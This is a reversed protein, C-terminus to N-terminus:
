YRGDVTEGLNRTTLAKLVTRSLIESLFSVHGDAFAFNAGSAHWSQIGGEDFSPKSNIGYYSTAGGWAFWIKGMQCVGGPCYAPYTTPFPDNDLVDVECILLTKSTGDTIDKMKTRSAAFMVGTGKDDIGQLVARHTAVSLYNTEACDETGPFALTSSVLQNPPASPCQYTPILTKVAQQNATSNYSAKFNILNQANAEELFPLILAGWAWTIGPQPPVGYGGGDPFINNAGHYNHIALSMQKLNNSCSARRAAERAAQVAPLLLAILIGIIAIVVLLEVLTFGARLLEKVGNNTPRSVSKGCHPVSGNAIGSNAECTACGFRLDPMLFHM